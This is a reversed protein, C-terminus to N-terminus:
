ADIYIVKKETKGEANKGEYGIVYRVIRAEQWEGDINDREVERFYILKRTSLPEAELSFWHDETGEGIAFRGHRLDVGAIFGLSDELTFWYPKAPHELIDRFASPNWESTDDHKSYRDDEPQKLSEGNDFYCHWLLRM